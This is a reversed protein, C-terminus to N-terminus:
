SGNDGKKMEEDEEEIERLIESLEDLSWVRGCECKGCYTDQYQGGLVELKVIRKCFCTILIEPPDNQM